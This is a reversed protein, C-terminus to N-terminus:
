DGIKVEVRHVASIEDVRDTMKQAESRAVCLSREREGRPLPNAHPPDSSTAQQSSRQSQQESSTQDFSRAGTLRITGMEGVSCVSRRTAASRMRTSSPAMPVM